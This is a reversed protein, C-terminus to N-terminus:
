NLYGGILYEESVNESPEDDLLHFPDPLVPKTRVPVTQFRSCWARLADPLHTIDHPETSADQIKKPDYQLRQMCDILDPCNDMIKLQPVGDHLELYEKVRAWQPIRERGVKILPVDNMAFTLAMEIGTHRDRNWLDSPAYFETIREKCNELIVNAASPVTLDKRQLERYVYTQGDHNTTLWLVALRDLGYDIAVSKHWDAPPDFAPCVHATTSFEPFFQGEFVYWDGDIWAKRTQEDNAKLSRVYDSMMVAYNVNKETRPKGKIARQYGADFEFMKLNDWVKAQIFEYDEALEGDQERYKREIFLRLVWGHGVGGPNCTVYTRKPFPNAGRVTSDIKRFQQETLTTGEDFFIVDYEQGIYRAVDTEADCYGLKIMSGNDFWFEHPDSKYNPKIDAPLKGYAELMPLIYNGRLEDMTRRVILIKIGFHEYALFTAKMRVAHSKGGGRAGGYGVYRSTAKLFEAQKPQPEGFAKELVKDLYTETM